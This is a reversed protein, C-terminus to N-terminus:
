IPLQLWHLIDTYDLRCTKVVRRAAELMQWCHQLLPAAVDGASTAGVKAGHKYRLFRKILSSMTFATNALSSPAPTLRTLASCATSVTKSDSFFPIPRVWRM